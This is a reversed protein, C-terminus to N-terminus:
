ASIDDNPITVKSAIADKLGLKEILETASTSGAPPQAAPMAALIVASACWMLVAGLATRCNM